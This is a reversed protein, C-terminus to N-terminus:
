ELGIALLGCVVGLVLFSPFDELHVPGYDPIQITPQFGLGASSVLAATVCSLM